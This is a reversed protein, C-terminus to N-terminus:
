SCYCSTSGMIDFSAQLVVPTVSCVSGTVAYVVTGMAACASPTNVRVNDEQAAGPEISGGAFSTSFATAEAASVTVPDTGTNRIFVTKAEPCLGSSGTFMLQVPAMGAGTVTLNAGAVDAVLAVERPAFGMATSENTTLALVGSKQSGGLDTGIVAAPPIVEITRTEGPAITLPLSTAVRFGGTVSADEIRLPGTGKNQVALPTAIPTSGCTTTLALSSEFVAIPEGDGVSSDSMDEFGLRGCAMTSSAATVSWLIRV